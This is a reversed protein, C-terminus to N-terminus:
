MYELNINMTPFDDFVKIYTINLNYNYYWSNKPCDYLKKYDGDDIFELNQNNCSVKNICNIKESPEHLIAIFLFKEFEPSYNDYKREIKIQRKKPSIYEHSICTERYEGNAVTDTGYKLEGKPASSRSIGDDLYMTYIGKEGPYINLTIPNPLRNKNLEGVYQELEITPIIAGARVYIPVIYPIHYEENSIHADYEAITRGGQTPSLLPKKNDMFAFWKSGSPLYIDRKGFGNEHAQKEIVPAILLDNRVFFQNDMFEIKDNFLAKDNIDSLFMPRCIPMGNITNEFMSDYFLQLLRYRLEIYYKCIPLVCSYLYKVDEPMKNLDEVSLYQYFFQYQYPEQFFKADKKIYHNRFWPLFAGMATWRILLEPDAWHEWDKSKEFGGIDQGSIAQGTLGLALVQAINIKLFEWDSSNDGTWLGAFRQMGTFCGRGIIFNRKNERGKLNNLGHYTAKHLNYSFLNWVQIVPTQKYDSEEDDLMKIYDNNVMLRAPFSLMDGRTERICPTTMDQWVMEIGMDFIYQYQEGWWYRVEKRGLDPYCGTTGRNGGYYVEGIYPNGSNFNGEPDYYDYLHNGQSTDCKQYKKADQDDAGFRIDKVFYGKQKGELYTTYEQNNYSNKNSIIPTINTSCKIGKDKLNSFMQKPNPFKTEDITFTKYDKQIDVDIHIGDIPIKYNRYNNVVQEVDQRNEYGYCGQHYGLSYRPKLRATGILSTFSKIIDNCNEGLLFYYDLDGFKSGFLYNQSNYYGIDMCIESPNDIFVGYSSNENPVGYVEMFFPDSHYLPEREEFPGHNYVQRYRMNDYNFYTIQSSNKSLKIGGQEGFGVYKATISKNISQIISYENYGNHHFYLKSTSFVEFEKGNKTRFVQINFPNYNIIIKMFSEKASNGISIQLKSNTEIEKLDILIDSGVKNKLEDISNLVISRTNGQTYDSEKVKSPNFRIRFTDFSIIQIAMVCYTNDSKLLNLYVSQKSDNYNYSKLEKISDWSEFNSFFKEVPIFRFFDKDQTNSETINALSSM